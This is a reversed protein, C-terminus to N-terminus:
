EELNLKGQRFLDLARHLFFLEQITVPENTYQRSAIVTGYHEPLDCEFLLEFPCDLANSIKALIEVTPNAKGHEISYLHSRTIGAENALWDRSVGAISRFFQINRGIEHPISM